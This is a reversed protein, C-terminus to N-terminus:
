FVIQAAAAEAPIYIPRTLAFDRAVTAQLEADTRTKLEWKRDIVAATLIAIQKELVQKYTM